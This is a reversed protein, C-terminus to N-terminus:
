SSEEGHIRCPRGIADMGTGACIACNAAAQVLDRLEEVGMEKRFYSADERRAIEEQRQREYRQVHQAAGELYVPVHAQLFTDVMAKFAASHRYLHAQEPTLPVQISPFNPEM